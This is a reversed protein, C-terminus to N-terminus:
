HERAHCPAERLTTAEHALLAVRVNVYEEPTEDVLISELAQFPGHHDAKLAMEINLDSRALLGARHTALDVMQEESRGENVLHREYTRLSIRVEQPDPNDVADVEKERPDSKWWKLNLPAENDALKNTLIALRQDSSLPDGTAGPDKQTSGESGLNMHQLRNGARLMESGSTAEGDTADPDTADYDPTDSSAVVEDVAVPAGGGQDANRDVDMPDGTGALNEAGASAVGGPTVPRPTSDAIQDDVEAKLSRGQGEPDTPTSARLVADGGEGRARESRRPLHPLPEQSEAKVTM